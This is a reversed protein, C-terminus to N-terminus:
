NLSLKKFNYTVIENEFIIKPRHIYGIMHKDMM